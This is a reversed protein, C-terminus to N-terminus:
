FLNAYRDNETQKGGQKTVKDVVWNLIARYDSKYKKGNAGKYNDLIEIMRKVQSEGYQDVLKNYESEKMKVFEAYRIYINNKNETTTETTIETLSKVTEDIEKKVKPYNGNEGLSLISNVKESVESINLRVHVTPSGNFKFNKVEVLGKDKLIKIARDFQKPTIRIEEWWDNRGKALWLSNEKKVRLKSNGNENPLNWYVIQGLLLGAILDEAIDIYTRKVRFSDRSFQELKFLENM